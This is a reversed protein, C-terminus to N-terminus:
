KKMMQLPRAPDTIADIKAAYTTKKAIDEDTVFHVDVMGDTRFGTRRFNQEDLALSWGEFWTELLLRQMETGNFHVILDIDSRPSATANKTSGFLYVATVGYKEPDILSAIHEAARHRWRWSQSQEIAEEPDKLAFDDDSSKPQSLMGIAEDIDANMLIRLVQGGTVAPVDILRIVRDLHASEPLLQTFISPSDKFFQENFQIGPDDPYLPLYRINAEVLDQFFHTGFSLDPLYNGRKRAIEILSATNNIESYTVSVGMKIDGRSGWRGPGMLVFQRKPLVKNLKGVARGIEILTQRDAVADYQQPDVYVIHTIDPMRGNSVYRNATFLVRDKPLDRPIPAATSEDASSQPRCQLLYLDRGDSAFEIDVPTGLKSELLQLIAKIRQVFQTRTILGEFTVILDDKSFDCHLGLFNRIHDRDLISVLEHVNQIEHGYNRLLHQISVTEFSSTTLDIADVYQPAYRISEEMTVNVRLGPQGPALLVPYDDSLRDVARTGLGPVLRILGDERKIRPSWRFENKSFAVGAYAPLFYHGVKTGVVEQIMIGMEEYFDLLGREARYEIPDPGFTSAYVETIADCLANLREQKTGQNALFLSKYKGSFAAGFRDELLSSSRVILPRDGLDDLAVSLGKLVEPPFIGNKFTQVVHPYELRVQNIEKYKQEVIEELNNYYMFSMIADSTVYWTKPTKIGALLPDGNASKVIIKEALYLGASKGGLKGRSESGFVVNQLLSHFDNVTIFNKAIDVFQVQESFLRRILAAHVGRQTASPVDAGQPAIRHYRRIADTLQELSQSQHLARSLTVLKDEQIRRQVFAFIEEDSMHQAAIRFTEDSTHDNSLMVSRRQHPMNSDRALEEENINDPNNTLVLQKAEEIGSWCLHNLMKHSISLFLNKDTQRLLDLVVRWDDKRNQGFTEKATQWESFMHKMRHYMIFHGLRDAITQTLKVEEKLFPGEDGLPMEQRYQIIIQGIPKDQVLIPATLAWPSRRFDEAEYTNDAVAISASCVEPYQFGQPIASVILHCVDAIQADPLNLIEEVRYLCNLEKAREQLFWLLNDITKKQKNM